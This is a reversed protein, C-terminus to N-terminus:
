GGAGRAALAAATRLDAVFAAYERLKAAAEPLRLLYSPHVTVFVPVGDAGGTVRARERTVAVKRGTLAYAATAGLAVLLRPRV